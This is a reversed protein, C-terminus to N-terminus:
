RYGGAAQLVDVTASGSATIGYLTEGTGVDISVSEGATVALGTGSTVGSNGLYITGTKVRVLLSYKAQQDATPDLRTASTTVTVQQSQVSM